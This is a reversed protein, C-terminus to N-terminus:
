RNAERYATTHYQPSSGVSPEVAKNDIISWPLGETIQWVRGYADLGFVATKHQGAQDIFNTAAIQNFRPAKM